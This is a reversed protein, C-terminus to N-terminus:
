KFDPIFHKGRRKFPICDFNCFRIRNFLATKEWENRESEDLKDLLSNISIGMFNFDFEASILTISEHGKLPRGLSRITISKFLTKLEKNTLHGIDINALCSLYEKYKQEAQQRLKKNNIIVAREATIKSREDSFNQNRRLYDEEDIKDETYLDFNKDIRAVLKELDREIQELREPEYGYFIELFAQYEGNFDTQQMQLIKNQIMELLDNELLMYRHTCLGSKDKHRCTWYYGLRELAEGRGRQKRIYTSRCHGCVFLGSLLHEGVKHGCSGYEEARKTKEKQVRDFLDKDIIQLDPNEVKIWNDESLNKIYNLGLAKDSTMNIDTNTKTNTIILGTYLSNSIIGKISTDHWIAGKKTTIGGENLIRAIAGTGKHEDLYLSYIQKVIQAEEQNVKLYGGSRDYGYVDTGCWGGKERLRRQGFKIAESKARSEEQGVSIMMNILLESTPISTDINGDEFIVRVGYGKLIKIANAGDVVSRSFRAVNKILITDFLKQSALELMYSFAERNKLKTGSIGEDAFIGDENYGPAQGKRYLMGCKAPSYMANELFLKSYHERQNQFSNLQDEDDTSVRCYAVCRM